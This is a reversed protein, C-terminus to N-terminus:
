CIINERSCRKSAPEEARKERQHQMNNAVAELEFNSLTAPSAKTHQSPGSLFRWEYTNCIM